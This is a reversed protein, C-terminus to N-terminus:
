TNPLEHFTFPDQVLLGIWLRVKLQSTSSRDISLDFSYYSIKAGIKTSRATAWFDGIRISPGNCFPWKDAGPSWSGESAEQGPSFFYPVPQYHHHDPHHLYARHNEHLLYNAGIEAARATAWFRDIRILFRNYIAM